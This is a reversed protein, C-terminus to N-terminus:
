ASRGDSRRLHALFEDKDTFGVLSGDAVQRRVTEVMAVVAEPGGLDSVWQDFSPDDDPTPSDDLGQVMKGITTTSLCAMRPRLISHPTEGPALSLSALAGSRTAGGHPAAFIRHGELSRPTLRLNTLAPPLGVHTRNSPEDPRQSTKDSPGRELSSPAATLKM